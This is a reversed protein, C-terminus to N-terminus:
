PKGGTAALLRDLVALARDRHRRESPRAEGRREIQDAVLWRLAEREEDSLAAARHARVEDLLARLNRASVTACEMDTDSWMEIDALEEETLRESM